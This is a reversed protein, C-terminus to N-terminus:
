AERGALARRHLPEAEALKGQKKLLNALNNLSMLTDPHAEGLQAERGALARRYLPEAEALKGQNRLLNALNNITNLTSPHAEGLQAEKGALARRYLPEAEALKGQDSLLDALRMMDDMDADEGGGVARASEALWERMRALIAANVGNVGGETAKVAELINAQDEKSWAEAKAVDIKSMSLQISGFDTRLAEAFREKEDAHMRVDLTAKGELSSLIEWLCWSRKLPAPDEWPMMVLVTRGFAGIARKFTSSWWDKDYANDSAKHQNVSLVDLWVFVSDPEAESGELELVAELMRRFDYGWVHSVFHTAPGVFSEQRHAEVYSLSETMPKIHREVVDKTALGAPVSALLERLHALRVGLTPFDEQSLAADEAELGSVRARLAEAESGNDGVGEAGNEGGARPAGGAPARPAGLGAGRGSAAEADALPRAAAAAGGAATSSGCGM